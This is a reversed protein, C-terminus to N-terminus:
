RGKISLKSAARDFADGVVLPHHSTLLYESARRVVKEIEMPKAMIDMLKAADARLVGSLLYGNEGERLLESVANANTAFVLKGMKMANLVSGSAPVVSRYPAFPLVALCARDFCDTLAGDDVFGLYDVNAAYRQKLASLYAAGADNIADGIVVFRTQPFRQLVIEHLALAYDLGKNRAIFGFHLFNAPAPKYALIEEPRVVHPMYHVNQFGYTRRVRECGKHTLVFFRRIARLESRGIGFNKFYLQVFKAASNILSSQSKFHPWRLFPPDHLTVDIQRHGRRILEELFSLEQAQNVGIEIHVVDSSEIASVLRMDNSAVDLKEYGRQSLVLEFFDAAYRSIGSRGSFCAVHWQRM